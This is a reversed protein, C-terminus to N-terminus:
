VLNGTALCRLTIALREAPSIPSEFNTTTHTILPAVRALLDEFVSSNMRLYNRFESNDLDPLLSQFAGSM